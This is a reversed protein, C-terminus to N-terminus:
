LHLWEKLTLGSEKLEKANEVGIYRWHWSEHLYGTVGEKGEPYPLVYGYKYANELLWKGVQSRGFENTLELGTESEIFDVVTGLQHESFGPRASVKDAEVEGLQSVWSSYLAYQELYSRFGSAIVLTRGTDRTLDNLMLDLYDAAEERLLISATNTYLLYDTSLNKLDSPVYDDILKYEKNVRAKLNDGNATYKSNEWDEIESMGYPLNFGQRTVKIKVDESNGVKDLVKITLDATGLGINNLELAYYYTDNISEALVLKHRSEDELSIEKNSILTISGSNQYIVIETSFYNLELARDDVEEVEEVKPNLFNDISTRVQDVTSVGTISDIVYVTIASIFVIVLLILTLKIFHKM